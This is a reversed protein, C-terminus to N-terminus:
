VHQHLESWDCLVQHMGQLFITRNHAQACFPNQPLALVVVFDCNEDWLQSLLVLTQLM